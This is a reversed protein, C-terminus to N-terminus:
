ENQEEGFECFGCGYGILDPNSKTNMPEGNEIIEKMTKLETNQQFKWSDFKSIKM